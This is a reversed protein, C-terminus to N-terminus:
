REAQHQFPFSRQRDPHGTEFVTAITWSIKDYLFHYLFLPALNENIVTGNGIKGKRGSIIAINDNGHKGTVL